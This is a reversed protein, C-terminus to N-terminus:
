WRPAASLASREVPATLQYRTAVSQVLEFFWEEASPSVVIKKVLVSLDIKRYEGIAYRKSDIDPLDGGDQPRVHCVARVEKEHIFELRKHFYLLMADDERIHTSRYDVYDVKGIYIREDCRFSDRLSSFDTNVAIGDTYRSYANWLAPSEYDNEHWCNVYYERRAARTIKGRKMQVKRAEATRSILRRLRQTKVSVSGEFPDGLRDSRAFYLEERDLLSLLKTFEMYRWLNAEPSPASLSPHESYMDRQRYQFAPRQTCDGLIPLRARPTCARSRDAFPPPQSQEAFSGCGGRSLRLM